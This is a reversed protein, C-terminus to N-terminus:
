PLARQTGQAHSHSCRVVVYVCCVNCPLSMYMCSITYYVVIHPVASCYVIYLTYVLSVSLPMHYALLKRGCRSQKDSVSMNFSSM